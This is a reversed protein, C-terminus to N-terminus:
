PNHSVSQIRLHVTMYAEAPTRSINRCIHHVSVMCIHNSEGEIEKEKQKERESKTIERERVCACVCM